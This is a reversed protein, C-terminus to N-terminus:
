NKYHYDNLSLVKGVHDTVMLLRGFGDYHYNITLGRPDTISSVGVSPEYTFTTVQANPLGDRINQLASKIDAESETKLNISTYNPVATASVIKALVYTSSSDWIYKVIPGDKRQIETPKGDTNHEFTSILDYSSPIYSTTSSNSGQGKNYHYNEKINGSFDYTFFQGQTQLGNTTNIISIPLSVLNKTSILNQLSQVSLYDLPYTISKTIYTGNPDFNDPISKGGISSKYRGDTSELTVLLNDNYYYAKSITSPVYQNTLPKNFSTSIENTLLNKYTNYYANVPQGYGIKYLVPDRFCNDLDGLENWSITEETNTSYTYTKKSITDNNNFLITELPLSSITKISSKGTFHHETTIFENSIPEQKVTVKDYYYGQMNMATSTLVYDSSFIELPGLSRYTLYEEWVLGHFGEYTYFTHNYTKGEGDLDKIEQIRLGGQKATATTNSEYTFETSGGTPYQIKTLIGAEALSTNVDRNALQYNSGIALNGAVTYPVLVQNNQGNYYGWYDKSFSGKTPLSSSEKYSFIYSPKILGDFGVEYVEKLKLRPDGSFKGYVFHFEKQRNSIKDKIIIKDLQKKWDSLTPDESYIFEIRINDSDIYDVLQNKPRYIVSSNQLIKETGSGDVEGCDPLGGTSANYTPHINIRQSIGSIQYMFQYSVYGFNIFKNNKTTIKDLMWGTPKFALDYNSSFGGASVTISTNENTEQTGFDFTNGFYDKIVFVNLDKQAVNFEPIITLKDLREKMIEPNSLGTKPKFIFNGSNSLFSYNFNDPNHDYRNYGDFGLYDQTSRLNVPNATYWSADRFSTLPNLWGEEDAKGGAISRFIGGSANLTWKLGVVSALDDVKVGSAHYSISIPVQVGDVELTYLPININPVGTSYDIPTNGYITFSSANPTQPIVNSYHDIYPSNFFSESQQAMGVLCLHIAFISLLIKKM